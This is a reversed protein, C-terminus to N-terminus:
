RIVVAVRDAKSGTRVKKIKTIKDASDVVLGLAHFENPSSIHYRWIKDDNWFYIDATNMSIGDLGERFYQNQTSLFINCTEL